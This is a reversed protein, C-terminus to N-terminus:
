DLYQSLLTMLQNVDKPDQYFADAGADLVLEAVDSVVKASLAIIPTPQNALERRLSPIIGTAVEHEPWAELFILSPKVASVVGPALACNSGIVPYGLKMLHVMLLALHAPHDDIIMILQM